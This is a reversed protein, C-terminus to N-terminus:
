GLFEDEIEIDAEIKRCAKTPKIVRALHTGVSPSKMCENHEESSVPTYEYLGGAKYLVVLASKGDHGVAVVNSSNSVSKLKM